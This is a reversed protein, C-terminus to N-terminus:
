SIELKANKKHGASSLSPPGGLLKYTFSKNISKKMSFDHSLWQRASSQLTQWEVDLMEPCWLDLRREKIHTKKHDFTSTLFSFFSFSMQLKFTWPFLVQYEDERLKYMLIHENFNIYLRKTIFLENFCIDGTHMERHCLWYCMQLKELIHIFIM